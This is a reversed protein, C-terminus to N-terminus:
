LFIMRFTRENGRRLKLAGHIGPEHSVEDNAKEHKRCIALDWTKLVQYRSNGM